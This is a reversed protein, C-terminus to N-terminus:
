LFKLLTPGDIDHVGDFTLETVKTNLKGTITKMEAFGENTIFPDKLGYIMYVDKSQLVRSGAHLDMDPPFIGAWLILRAFTIEDQLVWRSATASGQSFGLITVPIGADKVEKKYVSTLYTCYNQIDMLRNERTMWTAGVRNNKRGSIHLEELYFHSLGEPAIICIHNESLINFKRIFYQALQGYGHLVFWIQRTATNIENLKYYRASFTFNVDLEKM